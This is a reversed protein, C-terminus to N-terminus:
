NSDGSGWVKSCHDWTGSDRGGAAPFMLLFSYIFSIFKLHFHSSANSPCSNISHCIVLLPWPIETAVHNGHYHYCFVDIQFIIM